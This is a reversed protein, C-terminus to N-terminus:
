IILDVFGYTDIPLLEISFPTYTYISIHDHILYVAIVVCVARLWSM